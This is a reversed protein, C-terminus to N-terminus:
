NAIFRKVIQTHGLDLAAHYLGPTLAPLEIAATNDYITQQILTRGSSDFIVLQASTFEVNTLQLYVRDSVTAPNPIIQFDGSDNQTGIQVIKSYTSSGDFDLQELRYYNIGPLPKEDLYTYNYVDNSDGKGKVFGISEWKSGDVSRQVDFGANDIENITQWAILHYNGSHRANFFTFEVPLLTNAGVRGPSATSGAAFNGFNVSLCANPDTTSLIWNSGNNNDTKGSAIIQSTPLNLAISADSGSTPWTGSAEYNVEDSLNGGSDRIQLKESACTASNSISPGASVTIAQIDDTCADWAEQFDPEGQNSVIAIGFAPISGSLALVNGDEIDAFTWGTLDVASSSINAIEVWEQNAEPSVPNYLIETIVIIGSETDVTIIGPSGM